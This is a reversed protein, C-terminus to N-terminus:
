KPSWINKLSWAQLTKASSTKLGPGRDTHLSALCFAAEGDNWFAEIVGRDVLIRADLTGEPHIIRRAIVKGDKALILEKTALDYTFEHSRLAVKVPTVGFRELKAATVRKTLTSLTRV